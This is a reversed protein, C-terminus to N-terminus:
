ESKGETESLLTVAGNAAANMAMEPSLYVIEGYRNRCRVLPATHTIANQNHAAAEGAMNRQRGM